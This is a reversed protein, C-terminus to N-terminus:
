CSWLMVQTALLAVPVGQWQEKLYKLFGILEDADFHQIEKKTGEIWTFQAWPNETLLKGEPVVGRVCKRGASRNIRQFAAHLTRLWKLV